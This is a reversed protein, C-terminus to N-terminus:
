IFSVVHIVSSPHCLFSSSSVLHILTSKVTRVNDRPPQSVRLAVTQRCNRVLQIVHDRPARPFPCSLKIMLVLLEQTALLEIKFIM